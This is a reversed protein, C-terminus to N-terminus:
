RYPQFVHSEKAVSHGRWGKRDHIAQTWGFGALGQVRQGPYTIYRHHVAVLAVSERALLDAASNPSSSQVIVERSVKREAPWARVIKWFWEIVEDSPNSRDSTHAVLGHM